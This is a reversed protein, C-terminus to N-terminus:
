NIFMIKTVDTKTGDDNTLFVLYIGTQVRNGNSDKGNWAAQGGDSRTEYVINGALDTIKVYTDAVLGTVTIIGDYDPHVPNPFAYVNTYDKNGTTAVNRYSIIGKGTGFFVEGTKPDITACLINNDLLPSNHDMFHLYEEQGDHSAYYVGGSMTGFWKKNAGDVLITTVTENGLFIDAENTNNKRPIKIQRATIDSKFVNEPSYYVAVGKDTGVWVYGNKDEAISFISNSILENKENYVKFKKYKDDRIDSLTGNENFVFLGYDKVIVWKNNDQTILIQSIHNNDGSISSYNLGHWDGEPTLVHVPVSAVSTTAWLNNKDDFALGGARITSPHKIAVALTSNTQNHLKYLEDNRYEYIGNLWSACFYQNPNKPNIRIRVFDDSNYNLEESNQWTKSTWRENNFKYIQGGYYLPSWSRNMGGYVGYVNEGDATLDYISYSAPGNLNFLSAFKTELSYRVLGNEKDAIWIINKDKSDLVVFSPNSKIYKWNVNYYGLREHYEEFKKDLFIIGDHTSVILFDPASSLSAIQNININEVRNWSNGNYIFLSDSLNINDNKYGVIINNDFFTISNFVHQKTNDSMWSFSPDGYDNRSVIEWKSFDVLPASLNGKYVGNDTAAYIYEGDTIIENIGLYSGNDGILWTEKVEKKVLDIVVVGFGCALYALNDIFVMSNITKNANLAKRNIDSLNIIDNKTLIDVNGNGYGVVIYKLKENYKIARMDSDNLGSIKSIAELEGSSKSYKMLNINTSMYINDDVIIVQGGNVYPVHTRWQGIEIQAFSTIAPVLSIILIIFFIRINM